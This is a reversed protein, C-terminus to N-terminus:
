RRDGHWRSNSCPWSPRTSFVKLIAHAWFLVECCVFCSSSHSLIPFQPPHPRFVAAISFFLFLLPSSPPLPLLPFLPLLFPPSSPPPTSPFFPPLPFSPLPPSIGWRRSYTHAAASWTLTYLLLQYRAHNLPKEPLPIECQIVINEYCKYVNDHSKFNWPTSIEKFWLPATM